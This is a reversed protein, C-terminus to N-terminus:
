CARSVLLVTTRMASWCFLKIGNRNCPMPAVRSVCNVTVQKLQLHETNKNVRGAINCCRTKKNKNKILSKNPHTTVHFSAICLVCLLFMKCSTVLCIIIYIVISKVYLSLFFLSHYSALCNVLVHM